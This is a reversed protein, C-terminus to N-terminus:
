QMYYTGGADYFLCFVREGDAAGDDANVNLTTPDCVPANDNVDGVNVTIPRDVSKPPTDKDRAQVVLTYSQM